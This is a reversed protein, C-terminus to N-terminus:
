TAEEALRALEPVPGVLILLDDGALKTDAQPPVVLEGDPKRVALVMVGARDACAERISISDLRSGSRVVVEEVRLDPDISVMDVFDLVAPRMSMAAMRVGSEIYPSVVRDCGARRLIEVSDPSSARAIIFLDPNMSRATLAIFVNSADSDVACLLGRARRVGAQELVAENAPDDILYPVQADALVAELTADGEIVVVDADQNVLEGVSARGVRGYSCVIFHDRLNDIRRRMIRRSLTKGLQGSALRATVMAILVFVAVFGFAILSMTFARGGASLPEIEGFGVTTLTTVTMYLADLVGFGEIVVYGVTGYVVAVGLLLALM